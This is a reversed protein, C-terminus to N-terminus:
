PLREKTLPIQSNVREREQRGMQKRTDEDSNGRQARDRGILPIVPWLM